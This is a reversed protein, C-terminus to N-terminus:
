IIENSVVYPTPVVSSFLYVPIDKRLMAAAVFHAWRHVILAVKFDGVVVVICKICYVM